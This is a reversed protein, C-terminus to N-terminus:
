GRVAYGSRIQGVALVEFSREVKHAVAKNIDRMVAASIVEIDVKIDDVVVLENSSIL